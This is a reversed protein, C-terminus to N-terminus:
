TSFSQRASESRVALFKAARAECGWLASWDTHFDDHACVVVWFSPGGVCMSFWYCGMWPIAAVVCEVM